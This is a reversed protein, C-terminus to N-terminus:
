GPGPRQLAIVAFNIVGVRIRRAPIGIIASLQLRSLDVHAVLKVAGPLYVTSIAILPIIEDGTSIVDIPCEPSRSQGPGRIRTGGYFDARPVTKKAVRWPEPNIM